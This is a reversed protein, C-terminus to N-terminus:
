LGKQGERGPVPWCRSWGLKVFTLKALLFSVEGAVPFPSLAMSGVKVQSDTILDQSHIGCRTDHFCGLSNFKRLPSINEQDTEVSHALWPGKQEPFHRLGVSVPSQSASGLGFALGTGRRGTGVSLGPAPSKAKTLRCVAGIYCLPNFSIIGM